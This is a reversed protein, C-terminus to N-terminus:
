KSNKEFNVIYKSSFLPLISIIFFRSLLSRSITSSTTCFFISAFLVLLLQTIRLHIFIMFYRIAAVIKCSYAHYKTYYNSNAYDEAQYSYFGKGM